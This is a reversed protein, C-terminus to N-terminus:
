DINRPGEPENEKPLYARLREKIEAYEPNNALNTWEMPDKEHDYLEEVGNHQVNIYSYRGDYIRHSKYKDTTLTPENWEMDPNKLLEVFSRGDNLPNRPLGCLEVLTPYMDILNVIGNCQKKNPTVAPVKVMLPVRASEQWLYTKGYKQKEGLHWGHDGWLMVITNDAYKSNALGDLLVGVCDDAFTITALYAQVSEKHRDYKEARLWSWHAKYAQKGYKNIIDGLDNDCTKPLVIKDLPYMDFYKQPVYWSLHPKSFGIAMFFPKGDFDRTNLQESAWKATQYDKMKTEDNGKTPGWDFAKYHYSKKENPLNPLGNVPREKSITGVGALTKHWEDFAWEGNDKKKQGPISHKHFIKGMSISHYGHKSFYEPLTILDKAKPANKLNNRNGYVGSKCARVGTLLASRSPGCVTAPAQTDYMVMGGEAHFKDLNPTKVQPNGGFCGIWDNLDDISIFLVNPKDQATVSLTNIGVIIVALFLMKRIYEIKTVKM